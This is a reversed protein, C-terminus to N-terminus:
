LFSAAEKEINEKDLVNKEIVSDRQLEYGSNEGHITYLKRNSTKLKIVIVNSLM